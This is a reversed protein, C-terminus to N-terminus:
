REGFVIDPHPDQEPYKVICDSTGSCWRLYCDVDEKLTSYGSLDFVAKEYAAFMGIKWFQEAFNTRSHRAKYGNFLRRFANKTISICEVAKGTAIHDPHDNRNEILDPNPYNIWREKINGTEYLIITELTAHVDTWGKYSASNDTATTSDIEGTVLKSLSQFNTSAFGNGNLNGDPLRMFYFTADGASWRRICHGTMIKIEESERFNRFPALCFRLSSKSGEERAASFREDLGADGATTIIFVTKTKEDLIDVYVQPFMFLQWDDAHAVIYFCIKTFAGEIM